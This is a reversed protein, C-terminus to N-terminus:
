IINQRIGSKQEDNTVVYNFQRYVLIGRMTM